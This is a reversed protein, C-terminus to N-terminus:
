QLCCVASSKSVDFSIRRRLTSRKLAEVFVERRFAGAALKSSDNSARLGVEFIAVVPKHDSSSFCEVCDYLRVTLAQGERNMYLIRDTYSPVRVTNRDYMNSNIEYKFTPAFSIEGEHFGSFADGDAIVKNLQDFRLLSKFDREALFRLVTESSTDLRFNLDGFWFIADYRSPAVPAVKSPPVAQRFLARIIKEYDAIRNHQKNEHATLHSNIFLMSTGFFSFSSCVAGKTKLATGARTPQLVDRPAGCYWILDRQVFVSLHLVGLHCAHFLVHSPLLAQQLRVEWERKDAVGEQVGIVYMDANEETTTLLLESLNKPGMTSNQNWSAIFIRLKRDPFVRLLEDENILPSSGLAPASSGRSSTARSSSSAGQGRDRQFLHFKLRRGSPVASGVTSSNAEPGIARTGGFRSGHAIHSSIHEIERIETTM